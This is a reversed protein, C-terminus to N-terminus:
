AGVPEANAYDQETRGPVSRKIYLVTSVPFIAPHRATLLIDMWIAAEDSLEVGSSGAAGFLSRAFQRDEPRLIGLDILYETRKRVQTEDGTINNRIDAKGTNRCMYIYRGNLVDPSLAEIFMHCNDFTPELERVECVQEQEGTTPNPRTEAEAKKILEQLGVEVAEAVGWDGSPHLCRYLDLNKFHQPYDVFLRHRGMLVYDDLVPGREEDIAPLATVLNERVRRDANLLANAYDREAPDAHKNAAISCLEVYGEPAFFATDISRSVHATTAREIVAKYAEGFSIAPYGEGGSVRDM